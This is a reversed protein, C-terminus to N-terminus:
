KAIINKWGTNIPTATMSPHVLEEVLVSNMARRFRSRAGAASHAALSRQRWDERSARGMFSPGDAAIRIPRIGTMLIKKAREKSRHFNYDAARYFITSLLEVRDSFARRCPRVDRRRSLWRVYIRGRRQVFPVQRHSLLEDEREGDRRADGQRDRARGAGRDAIASEAGAERRRLRKGDLLHLEEELVVIIAPVGVAPSPGAPVPAPVGQAPAIAPAATLAPMAPSVVVEIVAMQVVPMRMMAMGMAPMVMAAVMAMMAAVSLVSWTKASPRRAAAGRRLAVASGGRQWKRAPPALVVPSSLLM